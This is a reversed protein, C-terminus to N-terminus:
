GGQVPDPLAMTLHGHWIQTFLEFSSGLYICFCGFVDSCGFEETIEREDAATAVVEEVFNSLYM